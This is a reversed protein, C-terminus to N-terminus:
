RDSEQELEAFRAIEVQLRPDDRVKDWLPDLRLVSASIRRDGCPLTRLRALEPLALDLRGLAAHVRAAEAVISAGDYQDKEAPLMALGREVAALAAADHGSFAEILAIEMQASVAVPHDPPLAAVIGQNEALAARLRSPADSAGRMALLVNFSSMSGNLESWHGAGNAIADLAQVARAPDRRFAYIGARTFRLKLPDGEVVSLAGQV